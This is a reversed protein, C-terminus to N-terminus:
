KSQDLKKRICKALDGLSFPKLLFMIEEDPNKHSFFSEDIYYGSIYITPLKLQEALEIGNTRPLVVDTVLLDIDQHEVALSIADTSSAAELISYGLRELMKRTPKRVSATNDVLLIKEVGRSTTEETKLAPAIVSPKKAPFSVKFTSGQGPSSVVEIFGNNRTVNDHVISLGLGTGKDLGKTTYFPEFMNKVTDSSMGCGDDSVSFWVYLGSPIGPSAARNMTGTAITINGSEPIADRSNICLNVIIQDLQTPDSEIFSSRPSPKWNLRVNEGVLKQLMKLMGTVTENLDIQKIVAAQKRAFILLQRAIDASRRAATCIEQLDEHISQGPETEAVAIEAHGLIVGLMNNFDHAVSGALQGLIELKHAHALREELQKQENKMRVQETIDRIFVVMRGGEINTYQASVEVDFLSGDKRHHKSEFRASGHEKIKWIRETVEAPTEAAEFSNIPTGILEALPYGSMTAYAENTDLLNGQMDVLWFGDMATQLIKRYRTERICIVGAANECEAIGTKLKTPRM